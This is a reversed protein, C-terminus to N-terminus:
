VLDRSFVYNQFGLGTVVTEVEQEKTRGVSIIVLANKKYEQLDNIRRVPIGCVEKQNGELETVAYYKIKTNERGEKLMAQVKRGVMGAGYLIITDYCSTIHVIKERRMKEQMVYNQPNVIISFIKLRWSNSYLEQDVEGLGAAELFDDRVRQALIEKNEDAVRSINNICDRIRIFNAWKYFPTGKEGMEDLIDHVFDYEDCVAFVKAKSYMSSNPNDVRYKYFAERVFYISESKVMTQFWFGNDQYSAGPTENHVIHERRLFETNYLGSWTFKQFLFAEEHELIHFKTEYLGYQKENATLQIYEQIYEGELNKYFEYFDAKIVDVQKEKMIAHLREYMHPVIMDDSEVIGVYPATVADMGVNMAKGYGENQKHIIHFREDKAAYEDLIKGSSDTSGDDVCIIEIDKMTQNRVSDLCERLYKEVNYVPIVISVEAM